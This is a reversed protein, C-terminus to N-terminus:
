PAGRLGAPLDADACPQWPGDLRPSSEWNAGARRFYSGDLWYAGPHSTVAYVQHSPDFVLDEGRPTTAHFGPREPPAPPTVVPPPPATVACSALLLAAALAARTV